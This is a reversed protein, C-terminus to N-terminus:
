APRWGWSQVIRPNTLITADDAAHRHLTAVTENMEAATAIGAAVTADSILEATVPVLLKADGARLAAPQDIKVEVGDLGAADLLLPLDPGIDPNAGRGRAAKRYCEVYHRFAPVDPRSFCASFDVDMVILAGGPALLRVMSAVAEAPRTLHSLLFRAHIRQFPAGPLAASGGALIDHVIFRAQPMGRTGADRRALGIKTDDLDVGVVTGGPGVRDALDFTVEGGGCGVDLCSMGPAIGVRDFLATTIPRMVRSLLKLREYGAVGGRIVYSEEAM